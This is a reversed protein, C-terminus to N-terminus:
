PPITERRCNLSIINSFNLLLLFKSVHCWIWEVIKPQLASFSFASFPTLRAFCAPLRARMGHCGRRYSQCLAQRARYLAHRQRDDQLHNSTVRGFGEAVNLGLNLLSSAISQGQKMHKNITQSTGSLMSPCSVRVASLPMSQWINQKHRHGRTSSGISRTKSM